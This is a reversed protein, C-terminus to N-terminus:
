CSLATRQYLAAEFGPPLHDADRVHEFGLREYYGRLAPSDRRCDLRLWDYGEAAVLSAAQELMDAGLGRGVLGRSAALRHLYGAPSGEEGWVETDSWQLTFTGVTQQGLVALYTLGARLPDIVRQEPFPVPWQDIGRSWLWGASENILRLVVALDDLHARRVVIHQDPDTLLAVGGSCQEAPSSVRGCTAAPTDAM